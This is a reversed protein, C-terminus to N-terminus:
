SSIVYRVLYLILFLLEMKRVTIPPMECLVGFRKYTSVRM